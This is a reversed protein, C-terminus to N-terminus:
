NEAGEDDGSERLELVQEIRKVDVGTQIIKSSFNFIKTELENIIPQIFDESVVRDYVSCLQAVIDEFDVNEIFEGDIEEDINSRIKAPNARDASTVFGTAFRGNRLSRKVIMQDLQFNMQKPLELKSYEVMMVIDCFGQDIRECAQRYLQNRHGPYKGEIVIRIGNIDLILDPKKKGIMVVGIARLGSEALLEALMSNLNDEMVTIWM